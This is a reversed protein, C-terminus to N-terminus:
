STEVMWDVTSEVRVWYAEGPQLVDFPSFIRLCYPSSPDYGEVRTAGTDAVLDAVAYSSNFSPFSVLNWGTRLQITTQAPVMGAVTLNSAQYTEIWLGKRHDMHDLNMKYQKFSVYYIWNKALPDYYWAKSFPVTQLVTALSEDVQVLPISVFNIGPQLGRGFKGAQETSNSSQGWMDNVQIIFFFNQPDGHGMDTAVFYDTGAPLNALWTYGIGSGNYTNAQLVTYGIVSFQGAGDDPSLTWTVNVDQLSAGELRASVFPVPSPPAPLGPGKMQSYYIDNDGDRGDCWAVHINTWTDVFLPIYDGIFWEAGLFSVDSVRMNPGVSMGFTTSNAYMIEFEQTRNDYWAIHVNGYFDVDVWPMLQVEGTLDDNVRLSPSFTTGNDLSAILSIDWDDTTFNTWVVYIHGEPGVALSTISSARHPGSGTWPASAVKRSPSFTLGGDLSKSFYIGEGTINGEDWWSISIEDNPAVGICAGNRFGATIDNVQVSPEFSLGQDTSRAFHLEYTVDFDVYVAYVTNSKATIWPKDTPITDPSDSIKVLPGWTVGRDLSRRVVADSHFPTYNYSLWAYYLIDNAFALVPDGGLLHTPDDMEVSPEFSLGDDLSRAYRVRWMTGARSMWGVHIIGLDDVVMTPEAQNDLTVDDTVNVNPSWPYDLTAHPNEGRTDELLSDIGGGAIGITSPLLLLMVGLAVVGSKIM